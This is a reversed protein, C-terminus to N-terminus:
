YGADALVDLVRREEQESLGRSRRRRLELRLSAALERKREPSLAAARMQAAAWLALGREDAGGDFAKLAEQMRAAESSVPGLVEITGAKPDLRVRSGERLIRGDSSARPPEDEISLGGAGWSARPLQVCPIGAAAAFIFSQPGGHTTLLAASKALAPVDAASVYPAAYIRGGLLAKGRDYTMEASVAEASASSTRSAPFGAFESPRLLGAADLLEWAKDLSLADRRGDKRVLEALGADALGGEPSLLYLALWREGGLKWQGYQARRAGARGLPVLAGALPELRLSMKADLKRAERALRGLPDYGSSRRLPPGQVLEGRAIAASLAENYYLDLTRRGVPASPPFPKQHLDALTRDVKQRLAEREGEQALHAQVKSTFDEPGAGPDLRGEAALMRALLDLRLANEEKSRTDRLYFPLRDAVLTGARVARIAFAARELIGQADLTSRTGDLVALVGAGSEPSVSFGADYLARSLLYLRAQESPGSDRGRASVRVLGGAQAARACVYVEAQPVIWWRRSRGLVLIEDKRRDADALGLSRVAAVTEESLLGAGVDLVPVELASGDVSLTVLLNAAVAGRPGAPAAGVDSRTRVGRRYAPGAAEAAGQRLLELLRYVSNKSLSFLEKEPSASLEAAARVASDNGVLVEYDKAAAALSEFLSAPVAAGRGQRALDSLEWLLDDARDLLRDRASFWRVVPEPADAGRQLRDQIEAPGAAFASGCFLSLSLVRLIRTL